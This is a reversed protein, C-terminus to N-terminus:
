TDLLNALASNIREPWGSDARVIRYPAAWPHWRAVQSDFAADDPFVAIVPTGATGAVHVAGSDPAVIARHAAIASKWDELNAFREVTAQTRREFADIYEREAGSAIPTVAATRAAGAFAAAVDDLPIGLRQWKDTVQFAVRADPAPDNALILPRLRATERTPTTQSVLNTGLEFLVECEHKQRPDLGASRYVTRTLLNRVWLTKLPKGWGNEFGVRQPIGAARALRYGSPDETAVLAHTYRRAALAVALERMAALDGADSSRLRWSAVDIHRVARATFLGANQARLVLDVPIGDSAFAALLPTLALADGIGDLRIVLVSPSTEPMSASESRPTRAAQKADHDRALVHHRQAFDVAVLPQVVEAANARSCRPRAIAKTRRKSAESHQDPKRSTFKEAIGLMQTGLGEFRQALLSRLQAGIRDDADFEVNGLATITRTQDGDAAVGNQEFAM